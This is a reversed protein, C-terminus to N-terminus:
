GRIASETRIIDAESWNHILLFDGTKTRVKKEHGLRAKSITGPHIKIFLLEFQVTIPQFIGIHAFDITFLTQAEM